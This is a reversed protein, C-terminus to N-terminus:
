DGHCGVWKFNKVVIRVEASEVAGGAKGWIAAGVRGDILLTLLVDLCPEVLLVGGLQLLRAGVTTGVAVLYLRM